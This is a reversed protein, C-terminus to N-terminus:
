TRSLKLVNEYVECSIYNRTNQHFKMLSSVKHHRNHPRHIKNIHMEPCIELVTSLVVYVFSLAYVVVVVVSVFKANLMSVPWPLFRIQAHM